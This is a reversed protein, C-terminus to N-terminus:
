RGHTQKVILFDIETFHYICSIYLIVKNFQKFLKPHYWKVNQLPRLYSVEKNPKPHYWKVNLLPALYSVTNTVECVSLNINYMDLM